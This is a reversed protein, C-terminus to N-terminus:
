PKSAKQQDNERRKKGKYFLIWSYAIFAFGLIFFVMSVITNLAQSHKVWLGALLTLFGLVKCLIIKNMENKIM